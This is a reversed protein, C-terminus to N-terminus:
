KHGGEKGAPKDGTVETLTIEGARVKELTDRRNFIWWLGGLTVAAVSVVNPLKSLVEWTLKPYAEWKETPRFGLDQFSMSSLYLVSTGGVENEGYVHDIYRGPSQAIRAHAEEILAERNGFKTAGTPCAATCAPQLGKALRKEACFICKQVRPVNSHWEYTPIQFQCGIMCYRCGICKDVDYLVPGAKSKYLAGVPCASACAPEECHMCQRKVNLGARKEVATYTTASLRVGGDERSLGNVEKCAWTCAKCGACMTLDTLIAPKM